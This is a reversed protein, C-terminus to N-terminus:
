KKKQKRTNKKNMNRKRSNKKMMCSECELHKIWYTRLRKLTKEKSQKQMMKNYATKRHKCPKCKSILEKQKKIMRDTIKLSM